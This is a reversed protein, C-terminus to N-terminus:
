LRPMAGTIGSKGGYKTNSEPVRVLAQRTSRLQELKPDNPAPQNKTGGFAGLLTGSHGSGEALCAFPHRTKAGQIRFGEPVLVLWFFRSLNRTSANITPRFIPVPTGDPRVSLSVSTPDVPQAQSHM